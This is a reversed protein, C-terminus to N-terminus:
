VRRKVGVDAVFENILRNVEVAREEHAQHGAQPLVVLRAQPIHEVFYQADSVPVVFDQEGWLVLTPCQVQLVSGHMRHHRADRVLNLLADEFGHTHFPTVLSRKMAPTLNSPDHYANPMGSTLLAENSMVYDMLLRAWARLLPVRMARSIVAVFRFRHAGAAGILVVGLTADPYIAAFHIAVAGGMSHGVVVAREIGLADMFARVHQAQARLSYDGDSPKDSLGWGKLDIAYVRHERALDDMNRYWTVISSAFGHILIIPTGDGKVQYRMTFGDVRVFQDDPAALEAHQYRRRQRHPIIAPGVIFCAAAVAGVATWKTLRRVNM